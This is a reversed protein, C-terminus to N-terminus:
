SWDKTYLRFSNGERERIVKNERELRKFVATTSIGYLRKIEAQTIGPNETIKLIVADRESAGEPLTGVIFGDFSFCAM